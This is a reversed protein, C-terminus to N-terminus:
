KKKKEEELQRRSKFVKGKAPPTTSKAPPTTKNQVKLTPPAKPTVKQTTTGHQSKAQNLLETPSNGNYQSMLTAENEATLPIVVPANALNYKGLATKPSIVIYDGTSNRGIHQLSGTMTVYQQNTSELEALDNKLEDNKTTAAIDKLQKTGVTWEVIPNNGGIKRTTVIWNDEQGANAGNVTRVMPVKGSGIEYKDKSGGRGTASRPPTYPRVVIGSSKLSPAYFTYLRQKILEDLAQPNTTQSEQWAKQAEAVEVPSYMKGGYQDAKDAVQELIKAKEVNKYRPELNKYVADTAQKIDEETYYYEDAQVTQGGQVKRVKEYQPKGLSAKMGAAFAKGPDVNYPMEIGMDDPRDKIKKSAWQELLDPADASYFAGKDTKLAQDKKWYNQKHTKSKNAYTEFEIGQKIVDNRLQAKKTPNKEREYNILTNKYGQYMETLEPIDREWVGGLKALDRDIDDKATSTKDAAKIYDDLKNKTDDFIVASGTGAKKLYVAGLPDM